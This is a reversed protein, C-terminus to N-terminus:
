IIQWEARERLQVKLIKHVFVQNLTVKLFDVIFEAAAEVESSYGLEPNFEVLDLSKLRGTQALFGGMMFVEELKPGHNVKTGTARMDMADCLDVDFSLHIPKKNYPDARHLAMELVEQAGVRNIEDSSFYQIGRKKIIDKEGQDLDRAGFIILHKPDLKHKMWPLPDTEHILYALPMGHFNGTPTTLPTNIDGHADAWIVITDPDHNLIGHVTGLGMGHDGGINLLFSDGLNQQSIQRSIRYNMLSNAEIDIINDSFFPESKIPFSVISLEVDSCINNLEQILGHSVLYDCAKRVGTHPQGFDFPINLIKIKDM